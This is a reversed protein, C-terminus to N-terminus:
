IYQARYTLYATFPLQQEFSQSWHVMKPRYPPHHVHSVTDFAASLDLLIICVGNGRSVTTVILSFAMIRVHYLQEKMGASQM